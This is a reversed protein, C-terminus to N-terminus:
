CNPRACAIRAIGCAAELACLFPIARKRRHRVHWVARLDNPPARQVSESELTDNVLHRGGPLEVTPTQLRACTRSDGSFRRQLEGLYELAVDLAVGIEGRISRSQEREERIGMTVTRRCLSSPPVPMADALM